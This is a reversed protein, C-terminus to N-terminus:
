MMDKLCNNIEHFNLELINVEFVSWEGGEGPSQITAGKHGIVSHEASSTNTRM